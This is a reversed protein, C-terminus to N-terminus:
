RRLDGRHYRAVAGRGAAQAETYRAPMTPSDWRGATMLETGAASLGQPVGMKMSHVGCGEGLGTKQTVTNLM